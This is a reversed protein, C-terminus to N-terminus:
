FRAFGCFPTLTGAGTITGTFCLYRNVTTGAAVVIRESAPAATVNNHVALDAYTVNDASHRVKGVFGTPGTMESVELYSAGGNVTNAPILTGGTGGTTCNVPISFTTPSIVTVAYTTPGNISPSSTINGSILVIQGSTLGHPVATTIVTPNALTNSTIPIPRQSRDLTYDVSNGDTFSNWTVTKQLLTAVIMGRDVSGSVQYTVNAKTLQGISGAVDYTLGFSGQIGTFEAGFTNGAYAFVVLRSVTQAVAAFATHITNLSDDFFAGTQTLTATQLGTPTQTDWADGLGTSKEFLAKIVHTIGQAKAALVNYGDVLFVSFAASSSKGGAM